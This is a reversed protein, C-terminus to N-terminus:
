NNYDEIEPLRDELSKLFNYTDEYDTKITDWHYQENNILNLWYQTMVIDGQSSANSMFKNLKADILEYFIKQKVTSYPIYQLFISARTNSETMNYYYENIAEISSKGQLILRYINEADLDSMYDDNGFSVQDTADVGQLIADGLWGGLYSIEENSYYGWNGTYLGTGWNSVFFDRGLTYALRAALSYQMHVFDIITRENDAKRKNNLLGTELNEFENTTYGLTNIFYTQKDVEGYEGEATTVSGAVDNWQNIGYKLYDYYFESLLRACRWAKQLTNESTFIADVREYLKLILAIEENSFGCWEKLQYEYPTVVTVTCEGNKGHENWDIAYLKASGCGVVTLTQYRQDNYWGSDIRIVDNNSSHWLVRKEDANAPVTSTSIDLPEAGNVGTFVGPSIPLEYVKGIHDLTIESPSVNIYNVLTKQTVKLGYPGTKLKAETVRIYYTTGAELSPCMRFNLKGGLAFDDIRLIKNGCCDYLEGVTDLSGTTYITYIKSEPVSFKFWQEAGPCCIRGSVLYETDIRLATQMNVNTPCCCSSSVSMTNVEAVAIEESEASVETAEDMSLMMIQESQESEDKTEITDVIEDSFIEVAEDMIFPNMGENSMVGEVCDLGKIFELQSMNMLTSLKYGDDDDSEVIADVAQLISILFDKQNADYQLVFPYKEDEKTNDAIEKAEEFLDTPPVLTIEEENINSIEIDNEFFDKTENNM